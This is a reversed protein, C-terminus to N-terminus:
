SPSDGPAPLFGPEDAPSIPATFRELTEHRLNYDHRSARGRLLLAPEHACDLIGFQGDEAGISPRRDSSALSSDLGRGQSPSQIGFLCCSHVGSDAEDCCEVLAAA